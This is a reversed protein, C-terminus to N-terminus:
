TEREELIYKELCTYRAGGPMINSQMLAFSGIEQSIGPYDCAEGILGPLSGPSKPDKLRGLTLHPKFKRDERPFGIKELRKDVEQQLRILEPKNKVGFWIVSPRSISPFAGTNEFELTFPSHNDKLPALANLISKLKEEEAEGLFKLTLHISEPRVWRVFSCGPRLKEQLQELHRRVHDDLQVAVFLRM